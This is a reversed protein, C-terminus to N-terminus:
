FGSRIDSGLVATSDREEMKGRFEFGAFRLIQTTSGRSACRLHKCTTPPSGAEKKMSKKSNSGGTRGRNKNVESSRGQTISLGRM